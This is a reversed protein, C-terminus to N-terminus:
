TMIRIIIIIFKYSSLVRFGMHHLAIGVFGQHVSVAAAYWYQPYNRRKNNHHSRSEKGSHPAEVRQNAASM